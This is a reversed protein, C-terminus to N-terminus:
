NTLIRRHAISMLTSWSVFFLRFPRKKKGRNLCGPPLPPAYHSVSLFSFLFLFLSYGAHIDFRALSDRRLWPSSQTLQVGVENVKISPILRWKYAAENRRRTATPPPPGPSSPTPHFAPFCLLFSFNKCWRLANCYIIHIYYYTIHLIYLM